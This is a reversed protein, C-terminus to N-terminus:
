GLDRYVVSPNANYLAIKQIAKNKIKNDKKCPFTVM